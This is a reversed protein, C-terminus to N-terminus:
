ILEMPREGLFVDFFSPLRKRIEPLLALDTVDADRVEGHFLQFPDHRDRRDLRELRGVAHDPRLDLALRQWVAALVVDADDAVARHALPQESALERPFTRGCQGLAIM